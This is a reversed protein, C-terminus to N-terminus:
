LQQYGEVPMIFEVRGIKVPHEVRSVAFPREILREVPRDVLGGTQDCIGKKDSEGM